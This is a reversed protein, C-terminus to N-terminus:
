RRKKKMPTNEAWIAKDAGRRPTRISRTLFERGDPLTFRDDNQSWGTADLHAINRGCAAVIDAHAVGHADQLHASAQQATASVYRASRDCLECVYVFSQGGPGHHATDKHAASSVKHDERMREMYVEMEAEHAASEDPTPFHCHACVVASNNDRLCPIRNAIGLQEGGTIARYNVGAKCTEDMLGSYHICKNDYTKAMAVGQRM